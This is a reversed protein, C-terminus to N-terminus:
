AIPYRVAMAITADWIVARMGPQSGEASLRAVLRDPRAWTAAAAFCAFAVVTAFLLTRGNARRRVLVGVAAGTSVLGVVGARSGTFVLAATLLALTFLLWLGHTDSLIAVIRARVIAQAYRRACHAMFGGILIGAAIVAWAAFHNRNIIAGFPAANSQRPTWFGYVQGGPALMSKGIGLLSAVIATWAIWQVLRRAHAPAAQRLTLFLALASIALMLSVATLAPDLSVPHWADPTSALDVQSRFAAAEPSVVAAVSPPLPVLQLAAVAIAALGCADALRRPDPWSRGLAM